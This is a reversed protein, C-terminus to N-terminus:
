ATLDRIFNHNRFFLAVRCGEVVADRPQQLSGVGLIM